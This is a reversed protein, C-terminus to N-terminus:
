KRWVLRMAQELRSSTIWFIITYVTFLPNNVVHSRRERIRYSFISGRKSLTADIMAM